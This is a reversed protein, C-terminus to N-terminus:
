ITEVFGGTFLDTDIRITYTSNIIFEDVTTDVAADGVGSNHVVTYGASSLETAFTAATVGAGTGAVTDIQLLAGSLSAGDITIEGDDSSQSLDFLNQLSLTLNGSGMNMEIEEINKIEEPGFSRLDLGVSADLIDATGAGGDIVNFNGNGLIFTDNGDFGFMSIDQKTNFTENFVDDTSSGILAQGDLTSRLTQNPASDPGAGDNSDGDFVFNQGIIINSNGFGDDFFSTTISLELGGYSFLGSVYSDADTIDAFMSESVSMTGFNNHPDLNEILIINGSAPSMDMFALTGGDASQMMSTILSDSFLLKLDNGQVEFEEIRVIDEGGFSRFDLLSGDAFNVTNITDFQGAGGDIYDFNMNSLFFFDQGAGGKFGTDSFGNDYFSENASGGVLHLFDGSAAIALSSSDDDMPQSLEKVENETLSVNYFRIDDIAGNLTQSGATDSGFFLNSSPTNFSSFSGNTELMGDIYLEANAGDYVVAIDHFQGDNVATTSALVTGNYSLQLVGAATIMLAYQGAAGTQSILYQPTGGTNAAKFRVALTYSSAGVPIGAGTVQISDNTGDFNLYLGEATLASNSTADLGNMMTGNAASVSDTLTTGTQENFTWHNTIAGGFGDDNTVTGPDGADRGYILAVSGDVAAAGDNDADAIGILFDEFGDGNTDGATTIDFQLTTSASYDYTMTFSDAPNNFLASDTSYSGTLADSGYVVTLNAIDLGDTTDTDYLIAFDDKGDGNFDGVYGASLIAQNTGSTFVVHQANAPDNLNKVYNASSTLLNGNADTISAMLDEGFYLHLAQQSSPLAQLIAIDSTGGGDVDGMYILSANNGGEPNINEFKIYPNIDSPASSIDIENGGLYSSLFLYADDNTGSTGTAAVMFDGNGDGDIDGASIVDSGFGDTGVIKMVDPMTDIVWFGDGTTMNDTGDSTTYVM